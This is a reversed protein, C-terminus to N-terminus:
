HDIHRNKHWDWAAKTIVDDYYGKFDPLMISGTKNKKQCKKAIRPREQNWVFKPM